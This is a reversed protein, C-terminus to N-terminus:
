LLAADAFFVSLQGDVTYDDQFLETFGNQYGLCDLTVDPLHRLLQEAMTRM